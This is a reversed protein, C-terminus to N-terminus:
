CLCEALTLATGDPPRQLRRVFIQGYAYGRDRIIYDAEWGCSETLQRAIWEATPNATVGLGCSREGFTVQDQLEFVDELAGNFRDAWLHTGTPPSLPWGCPADAIRQEVKMAHQRSISLM